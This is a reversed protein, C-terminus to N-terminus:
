CAATRYLIYDWGTAPIGVRHGSLAADVYKELRSVYQAVNRADGASPTRPGITRCILDTKNSVFLVADCKPLFHM